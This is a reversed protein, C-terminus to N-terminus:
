ADEIKFGDFDTCSLHGFTRTTNTVFFVFCTKANKPSVEPTIEVKNKHSHVGHGM